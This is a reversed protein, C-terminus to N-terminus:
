KKATVKSGLVSWVQPDEMGLRWLAIGGLAYRRAVDLKYTLSSANEFWVQHERGSNWYCFYPVKGTDDWRIAAGRSAAIDRAQSYSLYTPSTRGTQWDFGYGPVGLLIKEPSIHQVAFKAVSEVWGFSAIPGPGSSYGHEDYSMIVVYHSYQGIASYDFPGSWTNSRDDWTKAPVCVTVQYGQPDLRQYIEKVLLSLKDRDKLYINEIDLNVGDFDYKKILWELQNIFTQRTDANALMESALMKGDVQGEYLMNHVLAFVQVNHKKAQEIVTNKQATALGNQQEWIDMGSEPSLKYWFPAVASILRGSAALRSYSSPQGPEEDVYFGMIFLSNNSGTAPPLIQGSSPIYLKQGPYIISSSLGNVRLLEQYTTNFKQAVQFLTDGMKVTYVTSQPILLRLGPHILDSQLNNAAKLANVTTGYKKGISYLTDGKQIIYTQALIPSACILVAILLTVVLTVSKTRKM